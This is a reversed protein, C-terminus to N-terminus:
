QIPPSASRAKAEQTAPITGGTVGKDKAAIGAMGAAVLGVETLLDSYPQLAPIVKAVGAFAAVLGALTTQWNTIGLVTTSRQQPVIVAPDAASIQPIPPPTFIGELESFDKAQAKIKAIRINLADVQAMLADVMAAFQDLIAVDLGAITAPITPHAVPPAPVFPISPTSQPAQPTSQPVPVQPVPAPTAPQSAPPAKLLRAREVVAEAHAIRNDLNATARAPDEYVAM